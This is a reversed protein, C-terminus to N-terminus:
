ELSVAYASLSSTPARPTQPPALNAIPAAQAIPEQRKVAIVERQCDYYHIKMTNNIAFQKGCKDCSYKWDSHKMALHHRLTSYVKFTRECLKCKYKLAESM